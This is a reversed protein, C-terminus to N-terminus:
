EIQSNRQRHVAAHGVARRGSAVVIMVAESVVPGCAHRSVAQLSGTVEAQINPRRAIEKQARFLFLSRHESGCHIGEVNEIAHVEGAEDAIQTRWEEPLRHSGIRRSSQLKRHTQTKSLSTEIVVVIANASAAVSSVPMAM